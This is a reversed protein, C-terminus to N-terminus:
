ESEFKDLCYGCLFGDGEDADYISGCRGCTKIENDEGCNICKGYPYIDDNLSIYEQYCNWCPIDALPLGAGDKVASYRMSDIESKLENMEDKIYDVLDSTFEKIADEDIESERDPVYICEMYDEHAEGNTYQVTADLITRQENRATLM